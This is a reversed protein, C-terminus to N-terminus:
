NPITQYKRMNLNLKYKKAYDYTISHEESHM